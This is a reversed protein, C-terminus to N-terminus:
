LNEKTHQECTPFAAKPVSLLPLGLEAPGKLNVSGIHYKLHIDAFIGRKGTICADENWIDSPDSAAVLGICGIPM